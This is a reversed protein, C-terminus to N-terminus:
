KDALYALITWAAGVSLLQTEPFHTDSCLSCKVPMGKLGNFSFHILNSVLLSQGTVLVVEPKIIELNEQCFRLLDTERKEDYFLSLHM